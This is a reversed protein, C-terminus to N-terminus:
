INPTTCKEINATNLSTATAARVSIFAISFRLNILTASYKCNFSYEKPLEITDSHTLLQEKM